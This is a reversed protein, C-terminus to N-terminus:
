VEGQRKELLYDMYAKDENAKKTKKLEDYEELGKVVEDMLLTSLEDCKAYKHIKVREILEEIKM